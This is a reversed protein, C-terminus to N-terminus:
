NRKQKPLEKYRENTFTFKLSYMRQSKEKPVKNLDRRREWHAPHKDSILQWNLQLDESPFRPIRDHVNQIKKFTKSDIPKRYHTM